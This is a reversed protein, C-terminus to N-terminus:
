IDRQSALESIFTKYEAVDSSKQAEWERKVLSDLKANEKQISSSGHVEGSYDFPASLWSM